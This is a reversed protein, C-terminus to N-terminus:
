LPVVEQERTKWDYHVAADVFLTEVDYPCDEDSSYLLDEDAGVAIKKKGILFTDGKDWVLEAIEHPEAGREELEKKWYLQAAAQAKEETSYIGLHMKAEREETWEFLLFMTPVEDTSAM